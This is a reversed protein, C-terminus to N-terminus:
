TLVLIRSGHARFICIPWGFACHKSHYEILTNAEVREQGPLKLPAQSRILSNLEDQEGRSVARNRVGLDQALQEPRSGDEEGRVPHKVIL